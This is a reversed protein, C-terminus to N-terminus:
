PVLNLTANPYPTVFDDNFLYLYSNTTLDYTNCVAEDMTNINPIRIYINSNYEFIGGVEISSFPVTSPSPHNIKM